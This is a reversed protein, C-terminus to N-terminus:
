REFREKLVCYINYQMKWASDPQNTIKFMTIHKNLLDLVEEAAEQGLSNTRETLEESMSM